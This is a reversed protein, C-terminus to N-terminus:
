AIAKHKEMVALLKEAKKLAKRLSPTYRPDCDANVHVYGKYLNAIVWYHLGHEDYDKPNDTKFMRNAGLTIEIGGKRYTWQPDGSPSETLNWRIRSYRRVLSNLSSAEQNSNDNENKM